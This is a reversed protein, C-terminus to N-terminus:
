RTWWLTSLDDLDTYWQETGTILSATIEPATQADEDLTARLRELYYQLLPDNRAAARVADADIVDATTAREATDADCADNAATILADLEKGVQDLLADLPGDAGDDDRMEALRPVVVIMGPRLRDPDIGPNAERIARVVRDKAAESTRTKVLRAALAAVTKEQEVVVIPM